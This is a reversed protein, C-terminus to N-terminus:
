LDAGRRLLIQLDESGRLLIRQDEGGRLLIRLDEGGVEGYLPSILLMYIFNGHTIWVM